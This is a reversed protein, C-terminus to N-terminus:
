DWGPVSVLDFSHPTLNPSSLFGARCEWGLCLCSRYGTPSPGLTSLFGASVEPMPLPLEKPAPGLERSQTNHGHPCPELEMWTQDTGTMVYPTLGSHHQSGYMQNCHRICLALGLWTPCSGGYRPSDQICLNTVSLHSFWMTVKQGAMVFM